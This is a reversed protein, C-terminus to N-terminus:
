FWYNFTNRFYNFELVWTSTIFIIAYILAQVPLYPLQLRRSTETDASHPAVLGRKHPTKTEGRRRSNVACILARLFVSSTHSTIQPYARLAISHKKKYYIWLYEALLLQHYPRLFDNWHLQRFIPLKFAFWCCKLLRYIQYKVWSAEVFAAESRRQSLWPNWTERLRSSCQM